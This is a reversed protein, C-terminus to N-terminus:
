SGPAAQSGAHPGPKPPVGASEDAVGKERRRAERKAGRARYSGRRWHFQPSVFM